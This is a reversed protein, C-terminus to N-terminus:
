VSTSKKKIKKNKNFLNDLKEAAEKDPRRLAHAYIDTTISTRAHGLRKSVTRIDVNQAILLSANTHRLEHFKLEPMNYKVLIKKFWKSPTSPFIPKGNWQTFLRDTEQWLDGLKAKEGNQWLKYENLLNVLTKSIAIVRDGSETKPKKTIVGKARTYRSARRFRITM